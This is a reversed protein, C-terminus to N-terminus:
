LLGPPRHALNSQRFLPEGGNSEALVGTGRRPRGVARSRTWTTSATLLPRSTESVAAANATQQHVTLAANVSAQKRVSGSTSSSLGRISPMSLCRNRDTPNKRLGTNLVHIVCSGHIVVM